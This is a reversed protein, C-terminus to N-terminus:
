TAAPTTLECGFFCRPKPPSYIADKKPVDSPIYTVNDRVRLIEQGLHMAGCGLDLVISHNPVHDIFWEERKGWHKQTSELSAFMRVSFEESHLEQPLASSDNKAPSCDHLRMFNVPTVFPVLLAWLGRRLRM